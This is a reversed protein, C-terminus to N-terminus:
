ASKAKKMPSEPGMPDKSSVKRKCPSTISPLPKRLVHMSFLEPTYADICEQGQGPKAGISWHTLTFHVEVITGTLMKEYYHPYMLGGDYEYVPVPILRHTSQLAELAAKSIDNTCPWNKISYPFDLLLLPDACQL